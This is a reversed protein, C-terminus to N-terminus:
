TIRWIAADIEAVERAFKPQPPFFFAERKDQSYKERTSRMSISVSTLHDHLWEVATHTGCGDSFLELPDVDPPAGLAVAPNASQANAFTIIIVQHSARHGVVNLGLLYM